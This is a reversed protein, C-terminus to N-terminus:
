CKNLHRTSAFSQVLKRWNKEEERLTARLGHFGSRMEAENEEENKESTYTHTHAYKQKHMNM